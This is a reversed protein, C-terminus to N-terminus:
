PAKIKGIPQFKSRFIQQCFPKFKKCTQNSLYQVTKYKHEVARFLLVSFQVSYVHPSISYPMFIDWAHFMCTLILKGLTSGWVCIGNPNLHTYPQISLHRHTQMPTNSKTHLTCLHRHNKQTQTDTHTLTWPIHSQTHVHTDKDICTHTHIHTQAGM